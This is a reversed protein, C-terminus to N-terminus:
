FIGNKALHRTLFIKLIRVHTWPGAPVAGDRRGAVHREAPQGV